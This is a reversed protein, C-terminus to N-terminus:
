VFNYAKIYNLSRKVQPSNFKGQFVTFLLFTIDSISQFNKM